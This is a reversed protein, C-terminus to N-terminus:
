YWINGMLIVPQITHYFINLCNRIGPNLTLFNKRLKFYAKLSKYLEHKAMSFTGSATFMIGLYKYNSVCKIECNKYLFKYKINRGAKNFTIIKSKYTSVKLERDDCYNQLLNSKIKSDRQLLLSYWLTMYM